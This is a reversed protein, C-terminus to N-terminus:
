GGEAEGCRTASGHRVATVKSDVLWPSTTWCARREDAMGSGQARDLFWPPRILASLLKYWVDNAFVHHRGVPSSHLIRQAIINPAQYHESHSVMIKVSHKAAETM